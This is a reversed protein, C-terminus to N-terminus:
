GPESPVSLNGRHSDCLNDEANAQEELPVWLFLPPSFTLLLSWSFTSFLTFAAGNLLFLADREPPRSHIM